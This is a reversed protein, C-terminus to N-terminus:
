GTRTLVVAIIGADGAQTDAGDGGIRQVRVNLKKTPDATANTYMRTVRMTAAASTAVTQNGANGGGGSSALSDGHGAVDLIVNWVVNAPTGSDIGWCLDVHYTAWTSPIGVASAVSETGAADMMYAPWRSQLVGLAPSGATLHFAGAPITIVHDVIGLRMNEITVRRPVPTGDDDDVVYFVEDGSFTTLETLDTLDGM